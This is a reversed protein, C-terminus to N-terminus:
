AAASTSCSRATPRGVHVERKPATAPGKRTGLRMTPRDYPGPPAGTPRAASSRCAGPRAPQCAARDAGRSSPVPGGPYVDAGHVVRSDRHGTAPKRVAARRRPSRRRPRLAVPPPPRRTTAPGPSAWRPVRGPRSGRPATPTRDRARTRHPRAAPRRPGPAAAIAPRVTTAADSPPSNAANSRSVPRSRQRTAGGRSPKKAPGAIAPSRTTTAESRAVASSRPGAAREPGGVAKPGAVAVVVEPARRRDDRAQHQDARARSRLLRAGATAEAGVVQAGTAQAPRRRGDRGAGVAAADQPRRRDVEQRPLGVDRGARGVRPSAAGPVDESTSTRRASPAIVQTAGGAM